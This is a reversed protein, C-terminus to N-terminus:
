RMFSLPITWEDLGVDNAISTFTRHLAERAIFAVLQETIFHHDDM